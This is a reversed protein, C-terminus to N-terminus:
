RYSGPKNLTNDWRTEKMNQRQIRAVAEAVSRRCAAMMTTLAGLQQRQQAGLSAFFSQTQPPLAVMNVSQKGLHEYLGTLAQQLAPVHDLLQLVKMANEADFQKQAAGLADIAARCWQPMPTPGSSSGGPGGFEGRPAGTAPGAGNTPATM